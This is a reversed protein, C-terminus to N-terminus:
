KLWMGIQQKTMNGGCLVTAIHMEKFRTPNEALAALGVVGAPEVMMGHNEYVMQMAQIISTDDVLLVEDVIGHMDAVAEPVPVRVAIGDAITNVTETEIVKARLGAQWSNMMAPAGASCIGVVHTNPSMAKVWRAIGTLLAGNGLPVLIADLTHIHTMLEVAITGAGEAFDTQMGDEAFLADHEIAWHKAATKAIDFDNGKLQVTAGFSRMKEIKYPNANEAAFVTLDLDHKRCCYALAQGFNGASACALRPRNGTAVLNNIFFDAGRGKFSRIPNITEVKLTLKCDFISSLPESVFQPSHKFVPDISDSAEAIRALSLRHNRDIIKM